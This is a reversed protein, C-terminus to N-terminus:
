PVHDAPARQFIRMLSFFFLSISLLGIVVILVIVGYAASESFVSYYADLIWEPPHGSLASLFILFGFFSIGLIPLVKIFVSLKSHMSM